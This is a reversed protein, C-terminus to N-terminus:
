YNLERLSEVYQHWHEKCLDKNALRYTGSYCTDIPLVIKTLTVEECNAVDCYSKTMGKCRGPDYEDM